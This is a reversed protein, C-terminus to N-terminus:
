QGLRLHAKITFVLKLIKALDNNNGIYESVAKYSDNIEKYKNEPLQIGYGIMNLYKDVYFYNM